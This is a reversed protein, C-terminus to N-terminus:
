LNGSFCYAVPGTMTARSDASLEIAVEGAPMSVNVVDACLLGRANAAFAAACAGSGCATTLGAGREYVRLLIHAEDAIQAIGVNAQQPFMADNQIAPALEALPVADVDDVFYVAHPNGVNVAVCEQLAGHGVALRLTDAAEALPVDRWDSSVRGMDCRVRLEGTRECALLGALTRVEVTDRGAEEMLLWAVCRTANGCAEVERGDVNYLRMFVDGPGEAPELVVLQDGGVGRHIDCIRAIEEAEPRFPETRADVIVFHNGLGQMKLFRRGAPRLREWDVPKGQPQM